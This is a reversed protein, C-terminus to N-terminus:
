LLIAITHEDFYGKLKDKLKTPLPLRDVEDGSKLWSSLRELCLEELNIAGYETVTSPHMDLFNIIISFNHTFPLTTLILTM